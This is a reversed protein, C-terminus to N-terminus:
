GIKDVEVVDFQASVLTNGASVSLVRVRIDTGPKLTVGLRKEFPSGSSLEQVERTRWASGVDRTQLAVTAYGTSVNVRGVTVYWRIVSGDKDLPVTYCAILTQGLAAGITALIAGGSAVRITIIGANTETAGATEVWARQVRLWTKTSPVVTTGNMALTETQDSGAADQGRLVITQAGAGAATDTPDASVVEVSAAASLFGTYNGGSLWVDEAADVDANYGFKQVVNVGSEFGLAARDWYPLNNLRAM